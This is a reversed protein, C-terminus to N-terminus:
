KKERAKLYQLLLENYGAAYHHAVGAPFTTPSIVDSTGDIIKVGNSKEYRSYFNKVGPVVLSYGMYGVFRLDNTAIAATFDNTLNATIEIKIFDRSTSRRQQTHSPANTSTQGNASIAIIAAVFIIIPHRMTEM